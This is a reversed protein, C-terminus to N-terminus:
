LPRELRLMSCELSAGYLTMIANLLDAGLETITAIILQQETGSAPAAVWHLLMEMLRDRSPDISIGKPPLMQPPMGTTSRREGTPTRRNPSWTTDYSMSCGEFSCERHWSATIVQLLRWLHSNGLLVQMSRSVPHAPDSKAAPASVAQFVALRADMDQRLVTLAAQLLLVQWHVVLM